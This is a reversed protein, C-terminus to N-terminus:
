LGPLRARQPSHGVNQSNWALLPLPCHSLQARHRWAMLASQRPVSRTLLAQLFVIQDFIQVPIVTQRAPASGVLVAAGITVTRVGFMKWGLAATGTMGDAPMRYLRSLASPAIVSGAGVLLALGAVSRWLQESRLKMQSTRNQKHPCDGRVTPARSIPAGSACLGEDNRPVPVGNRM